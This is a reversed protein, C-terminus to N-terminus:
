RIARRLRSAVPQKQANRGRVIATSHPNSGTTRISGSLSVLFVPATATAGEAARRRSNRPPSAVPGTSIVIALRGTRPWVTHVADADTETM